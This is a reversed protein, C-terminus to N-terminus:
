NNNIIVIKSLIEDSNYEKQMVIGFERKTINGM